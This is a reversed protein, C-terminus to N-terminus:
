LFFLTVGCVSVLAGLVERLTVRQHFIFHSPALILLPSTAMITQAVGTTTYLTAMLSLSVGIFPGTVTAALTCLLGKADHAIRAVEGLKGSLMAWLSFGMLGTVARMSTSAFPIIWEFDTGMMGHAELSAAYCALGKASLVLGVGQGMAAGIGLLVGKVRTTGERRTDAEDDKKRGGSLCLAIGFITVFMGLLALGTMREGLLLLGSFAAAPPALTMLLQGIRSGVLIYCNMLCYDGLVYGVLGSLSLWMWTQGDAYMPYPFGTMHYMLVALMGLSLIMRSINLGFSGLRKSAVEAFMACATWSVAVTLALFEGKYM